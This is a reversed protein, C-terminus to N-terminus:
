CSVKIGNFNLPSWTLPTPTWQLLFSPLTSHYRDLTCCRKLNATFVRVTRIADLGTRPRDIIPSRNGTPVTNEPEPTRTNQQGTSMSSERDITIRNGHRCRNETNRIFTFTFSVTSFAMFVWLSLLEAREKVQKEKLGTVNIQKHYIISIVHPSQQM